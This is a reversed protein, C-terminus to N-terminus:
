PPPTDPAADRLAPRGQSVVVVGPPLGPEFRVQVDPVVDSLERSVAIARRQGLVPSGPDDFSGPHSSVTLSATHAQAAFRRLTDRQAADPQVTDGDFRIVVRSPAAKSDGSSKARRLMEDVSIAEGTGQGGNLRDQAELMTRDTEPIYRIPDHSCAAALVAMTCAAIRATAYSLAPWRM